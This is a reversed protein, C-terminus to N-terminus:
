QKELQRDLLMESKQLLERIRVELEHKHEESVEGREANKIEKELADKDKELQRLEDAEDPDATELQSKLVDFVSEMKEFLVEYKGEEMREKENKVFGFISKGLERVQEVIEESESKEHSDGFFYNYGVIVAIIILAWRIIVRM